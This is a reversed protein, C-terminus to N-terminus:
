VKNWGYESFNEGNKILDLVQKHHPLINSPLDDLAFWVIGDCKDPEAVVPEGMFSEAIMFFNIYEVGDSTLAHVTHVCRLAAADVKVGLEEITERVTASTVPEGGDVGGGPIAFVGPYFKANISRKLLCIKKDRLLIIATFVAMTFRSM